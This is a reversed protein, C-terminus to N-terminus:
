LLKRSRLGECQEDKKYVDNKDALKGAKPGDADAYTDEGNCKYINNNPTKLKLLFEKYIEAM